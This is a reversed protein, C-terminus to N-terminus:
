QAWRGVREVRQRYRYTQIFCCQCAASALAQGHACYNSQNRAAAFASRTESSSWVHRASSTPLTILLSVPVRMAHAANCALAQTENEDAVAIHARRRRPRPIRWQSAFARCGRRSRQVEGFHLFGLCLSPLCTLATVGSSSDHTRSHRRATRASSGFSTMRGEGTRIKKHNILMTILQKARSFFFCGNRTILM